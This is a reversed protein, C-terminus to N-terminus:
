FIPIPLCNFDVSENSMEILNEEEKEEEEEVEEEEGGGGKEEENTQEHIRLSNIKMTTECVKLM